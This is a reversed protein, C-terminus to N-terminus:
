SIWPPIAHSQWFNTDIPWSVNRTRPRRVVRNVIGDNKRIAEDLLGLPRNAIGETSYRSRVFNLAQAYSQRRRPDPDQTMGFEYAEIRARLIVLEETIPFPVSDSDSIFDLGRSWYNVVFARDVTPQPWLEYIPLGQLPDFGVFYVRFPNGVSSRRPDILDLDEKLGTSWGFEYGTIPDTLHGLREFTIDTSTYRSRYILATANSTTAERYLEDLTLISGIYADAAVVTNGANAVTNIQTPSVFSLVTTDFDTGGTGAGKIRIKKGVESGDFFGGTSFVNQSGNSISIDNDFFIVDSSLINYVPGGSIGVRIQRVTLPPNNLGGIAELASHNLDVIASNDIVGVGTLTISGPCLWREQKYLFHWEDSARRIERWAYQVYTEAQEPSLMPVFGRLRNVYHLFDTM